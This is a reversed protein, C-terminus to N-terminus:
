ARQKIGSKKRKAKAEGPGKRKALEKGDVNTEKSGLQRM